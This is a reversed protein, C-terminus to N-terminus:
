PDYLPPELIVYTPKTENYVNYFIGPDHAKYPETGM